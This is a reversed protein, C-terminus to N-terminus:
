QPGSSSRLAEYRAKARAKNDEEFKRWRAMEVDTLRPASEAVTNEPSSAQAIAASIDRGRPSTRSDRLRLTVLRGTETLVSAQDHEPDASTVEFPFGKERVGVWAGSKRQLDFIWLRTGESPGDM